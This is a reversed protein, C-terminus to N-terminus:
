GRVAAECGAGLGFPRAHLSAGTGRSAGASGGCGCASMANRRCTTHMTLCRRLVLMLLLRLQVRVRGARWPSWPRRLLQMLLLM